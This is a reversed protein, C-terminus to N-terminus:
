MIYINGEMSIPMTLEVVGNELLKVSSVQVLRTSQVMRIFRDVFFLLMPIVFYNYTSVVQYIWFLSFLLYLHHIRFFLDYFRRRVYSHSTIWMVLGIIWAILGAVVSREKRTVWTFFQCSFVFM